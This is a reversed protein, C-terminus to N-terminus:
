PARVWNDESHIEFVAEDKRRKKKDCKLNVTVKYEKYESSFLLLEQLNATGIVFTTSRKLPSTWEFNQVKKRKAFPFSTCHDTMWWVKLKWLAELGYSISRIRTKTQTKRGLSKQATGNQQVAAIKTSSKSTLYVNGPQQSVWSPPTTKRYVFSLSKMHNPLLKPLWCKPSHGIMTSINRPSFFFFHWNKFSGRM